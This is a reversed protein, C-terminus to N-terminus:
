QRLREEYASPLRSNTQEFASRMNDLTREASVDYCLAMLRSLMTKTSEMFSASAGMKGMVEGVAGLFCHITEQYDPKHCFQVLMLWADQSLVTSALFQPLPPLQESEDAHDM